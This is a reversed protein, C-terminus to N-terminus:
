FGAHAARLDVFGASRAHTDDGILAFLAIPESRGVVRVLDAELFALDGASARTTDAVLISVKCQKTLGEVRSAVNVADGIASYSFRQASGLNGVCCEGSNLGIGVRLTQGSRANLEDLAEVIRLAALCAKRPHDDIPLPANWFAMIADGIYKDITAEAELLVGTAPTLFNNLLATLEDPALHESLSTFGRIDSFLVTLERLEGGLKLAGPNDALRSVLEPSLYRGFAGNIFRKERDTWLLAVPTALAFVLLAAAGPLIPDLLLHQDKFAWWSAGAGLGVLLVTGVTSAIAGTWGALALVALGFAVAMAIEAGHLWDPRSLFTQGMIQDIIEAHVRVGPTAQSIPTQVLDRLGVASTGILVIRGQLKDAIAPTIGADGALDAASITPMDPLGSFYITFEGAPGTPMAFAGDKLATMAPQGTDAEGSAGTSRVIFSSAGQALRLAEVSLAPYLNGQALAVLPLARVVGDSSPPFSFFGIGSAASTLVPLNSVGGRYNPLYTKPDDGGTAFSAKPPPM